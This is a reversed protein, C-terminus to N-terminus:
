AHSFDLNVTRMAPHHLPGLHGAHNGAFVELRRHEGRASLTVFPHNQIHCACDPKHNILCDESIMDGVINPSSGTDNTHSGFRCFWPKHIAQRLGDGRGKAVAFIFHRPFLKARSDAGVPGSQLPRQAGDVGVKFPSKALASRPACIKVVLNLCNLLVLKQRLRQDVQCVAYPGESIFNVFFFVRVFDLGRKRTVARVEQQEVKELKGFLELRGRCGQFFVGDRFINHLLLTPRNM